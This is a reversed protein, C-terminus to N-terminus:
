WNTAFPTEPLGLVIRLLNTNKIKPNARYQEYERRRVLVEISEGPYKEQEDRIWQLLEPLSSYAQVEQESLSRAAIVNHSQMVLQEPIQHSERREDDRTLGVALAIDSELLELTAALEDSWWGSVTVGQKDIAIGGMDRFIQIEDLGIPERLDAPIASFIDDLKDARRIVIKDEAPDTGPLLIYKDEIDLLMDILREPKDCTYKHTVYIQERTHASSKINAGSKRNIRHCMHIMDPYNDAIIDSPSLKRGSSQLAEEQLQQVRAMVESKVDPHGWVFVGHICWEGAYPEIMGISVAWPPLKIMTECYPMRYREGSWIDEIIAGQEYHDVLQFCTIRMAAWGELMAREEASYRKGREELFWDIGRMGNDYKRFFYAWLNGAGDRLGGISSDFVQVKKRDFVWEGGDKKALFGYLDNTLRHKRDFFHKEQVQGAQNEAGKALCCQKYKKGSGCPCPDNRGTM